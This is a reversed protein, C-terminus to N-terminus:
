EENTKTMAQRVCIAILIVVLATIAVPILLTKSDKDSKMSIVEPDKETVVVTRETSYKYVPDSEVQVTVGQYVKSEETVVAAGEFTNQAAVNNATYEANQITTPRFTSIDGAQDIDSIIGADLLEQEYIEQRERLDDSYDPAIINNVDEVYADEDDPLVVIPEYTWTIMSDEWAKDSERTDVVISYVKEEAGTFARDNDVVVASEV